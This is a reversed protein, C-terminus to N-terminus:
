PAATAPPPTTTPYPYFGEGTKRGLKGAEVMTRLLPCARYKPDHFGEWLVDLIALATDLGVLDLLEFPGMPHHFGLKYAADIDEKTAVGEFVMWVAENVLVALGRSTVFGPTDRSAVVKKGLASAFADAKAVVEPRTHHGPILEVLDMQLVPNFFHVGVVRGPDKLGKAISTIPLSSTNSAFWAGPPAVEELEHLLQRKLELDEPIAEVFIQASEARRLGIATEIRGLSDEVASAPIRGKRVSGELARRSSALGRAVLEENVDGLTVFYGALASQAAIGSGMLGSGVVFVRERTL